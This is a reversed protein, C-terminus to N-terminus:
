ENLSLAPESLAVVDVVEEGAFVLFHKAQSLDRTGLGEQDVWKILESQQDSFVFGNTEELEPLLRLRIEEPCIRTLLVDQFHLEVVLVESNDLGQIRLDGDDYILKLATVSDIPQYHTKYRNKM